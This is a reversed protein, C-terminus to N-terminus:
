VQFSLARICFRRLQHLNQNLPLTTIMVQDLTAAHHLTGVGRKSNVLAAATALSAATTPSVLTGSM